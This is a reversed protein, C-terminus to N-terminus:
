PHSLGTGTAVLADARYSVIVKAPQPEKSEGM